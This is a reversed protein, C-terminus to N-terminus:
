WMSVRCSEGTAIWTDFCGHEIHKAKISLTGTFKHKRLVERIKLALTNGYERMEDLTKKGKGPFSVKVEHSGATVFGEAFTEYGNSYGGLSKLHDKIIKSSEALIETHM